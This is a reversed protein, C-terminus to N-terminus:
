GFLNCSCFVSFLINRDLYERLHVLLKFFHNANREPFFSDRAIRLAFFENLNWNFWPLSKISSPVNGNIQHLKKKLNLMKIPGIFGCCRGISLWHFFVSYNILSFKNFNRLSVNRAHRCVNERFYRSITHLLFVESYVRVYGSVSVWESVSISQTCPHLYLWMRQVFTTLLCCALLM